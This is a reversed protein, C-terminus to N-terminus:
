LDIVSQLVDEHSISVIVKPSPECTNSCTLLAESAQNFCTPWFGFVMKERALRLLPRLVRSTTINNIIIVVRRAANHLCLVFIENSTSCVARFHDSLQHASM